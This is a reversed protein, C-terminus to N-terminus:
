AGAASPSWTRSGSAGSSLVTTWERARRVELAAQCALIVGCYVIGTVIPSLEGTAAALMAEDLLGLGEGTRGAEILIHGQTHAALGFLDRDGFREAIAAAEGATAAAAELEGRAELEFVGPLM